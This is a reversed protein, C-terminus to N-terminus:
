KNQQILDLLQSTDGQFLINNNVVTGTNVMGMTPDCKTLKIEKQRLKEIDALQKYCDILLKLNNGITQQLSALAELHKASLDSVDIVSATDLIRQGNNILRLVNTRILQFDQKLNDMEFARPNEEIAEVVEGTVPMLQPLKEGMEDVVATLEHVLGNAVNFKEELKAMKKLQKEM